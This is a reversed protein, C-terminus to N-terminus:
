YPCFCLVSTTLDECLALVFIMQNMVIGKGAPVVTGAAVGAGDMAVCADIVIKLELELSIEEIDNEINLEGEKM